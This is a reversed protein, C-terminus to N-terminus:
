FLHYLDTAGGYPPLLYETPISSPVLIEYKKAKNRRRQIESDKWDTQDYIVEFDLSRVADEFKMLMSGSKNAVESTFFTSAAFLIDTSIPIFTTNELRQEVVRATYEMPHQDLFCLHVFQDLQRRADEEHSWSNGGTAMPTIGRKRLESLSLLGNSMISPINRTDTFHYICTPSFRRIFEDRTMRMM